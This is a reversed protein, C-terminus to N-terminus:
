GKGERLWNMKTRTVMVCQFEASGQAPHLEVPFISDGCGHTELRGGGGNLCM